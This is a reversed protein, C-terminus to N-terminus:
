ESQHKILDQGKQRCYGAEDMKGMKILVQELSSYIEPICENVAIAERFKEEALQYNGNEHFLRGLGTLARISKTDYQCAKKFEVEALDHKGLYFYVFGLGAYADSLHDSLLIAKKFCEEAEAYKNQYLFTFGLNLVLYSNDPYLSLGKEFESRARTYDNLRLSILGMENYIHYNIYSQKELEVFIKHAQKLKNQRLCAQGLEFKAGKNEPDLRMIENCIKEVSLWQNTQGYLRGSVRLLGLSEPFKKLGEELKERAAACQKASIFLSAEECFLRESVRLLGLSEPFKKLGKELKERALAYQKASIFLSAEECFLRESAILLDCSEPFKKLGEELKERAAACQKASIFLSAEECFLRESVRLLGLSKPFKKLGEELKERALACQKASIFLSAEECFLRESNILLDRSEPFKKLGEELKERALAYQKSNISLSSEECFLRKLTILLDQSRYFKKLGEELKERALAYQKASIFLSAEECFLRESIRILDPSDPFKRLGEELKERALSHQKAYILMSAKKCYLRIRNDEEYNKKLGDPDKDIPIDLEVIKDIYKKASLRRKEYTSSFDKTHWRMGDRASSPEINYEDCHYSMYSGFLIKLLCINGIATIYRKNDELFKLTQAINEENEGPFGVILNIDIKEINSEYVAKLNEMAEDPSFGKKMKKIVEPSFSECGFVVHNCGAEKMKKFIKSGMDKRVAILCSWQVGMDEKIIRNCLVELRNIDGNVLLDIFARHKIKYRNLHYKIEAVIDNPDRWKYKGLMQCDQCFVCRNICGRSGMIPLTMKDEYLLLDFEEFTPYPIQNIDHEGKIRVCFAQDKETDKYVDCNELIFADDNLCIKKVIGLLPREGEGIVFYDVKNKTFGEKEEKVSTSWGGVIIKINSNLGKIEGILENAFLIGVGPVSIGIVGINMEVIKQAALKINKIFCANAKGSLWFNVDDNFWVDQIQDDKKDTKVSNYLDINLDFIEVQVSNQKLYTALYALGLPPMLNSWPPSQILLIKPQEKKLEIMM